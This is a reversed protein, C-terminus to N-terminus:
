AVFMTVRLKQLALRSGRTVLIAQPIPGTGASCFSPTILKGHEWLRGLELRCPGDSTEIDRQRTM